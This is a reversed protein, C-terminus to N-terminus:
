AVQLFRVDALVTALAIETWAVGDDDVYRALLWPPDTECRDTRAMADSNRLGFVQDVRLAAHAGFRANALLLRVDDPTQAPAVGLFAALDTCGYLAGRVGAVGLFWAQTWPARALRNVTVVEAVQDLATLWYRGGALFGLKAAAGGREATEKLREALRTQFERLNLRPEM